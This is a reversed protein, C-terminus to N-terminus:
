IGPAASGRAARVARNFRVMVGTMEVVMENHRDIAAATETPDLDGRGLRQSVCTLYLEGLQRYRRVENGVTALVSQETFRGSPVTPAAPQRCHGILEDIDRSSVFETAGGTGTLSRYLNEATRFVPDFPNAEAMLSELVFRARDMRGLEIAAQAEAVYQSTDLVICSQRLADAADLVGSADGRADAADFNAALAVPDPEITVGFVPSRDLAIVSRIVVVPDPIATLDGTQRTPMSAIGDLVDLGATVRGFVTYGPATATPDLHSNDSLNFFFQSTASNPDEGRAAAITGRLNSLGNASENVVPDGGDRREFSRDFRGGQVMSGPVVHHIVTGSYFGSEAHRLFNATHLPARQDELAVDIAGRDTCVRVDVALAAPSAILFLALFQWCPSTKVVM